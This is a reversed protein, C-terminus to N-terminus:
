LPVDHRHQQEIEELTKLLEQIDSKVSKFDAEYLGRNVEIMISSAEHKYKEPVISGWYPSNRTVIYGRERFHNEAAAAFEDVHVDWENTGICVDPRNHDEEYPLPEKAFSHADVILCFGKKLEEAVKQEFTKHHAYYCEMAKEVICEPKKLYLPRGESTRSYSFGMGKKEMEDPIFREVDCFLRSYPFIVANEHEFLMDTDKDTMRRLEEVLEESTLAFQCEEPILTSSHPIHVVMM